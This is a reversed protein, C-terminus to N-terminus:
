LDLLLPAAPSMPSVFFDIMGGSQVGTKNLGGSVVVTLVYVVLVIIAIKILTNITDPSVGFGEVSSQEKDYGKMIYIDEINNKCPCFFEKIHTGATNVPQNVSYDFLGNTESSQRRVPNNILKHEELLACSNIKNQKWGDIYSNDNFQLSEKYLDCGRILEALDSTVKSM